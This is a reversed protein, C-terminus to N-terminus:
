KSPGAKKAKAIVDAISVQKYGQRKSEDAAEMFAFMDITVASPVPVKGTEFFKAVQKMLSLYMHETPKGTKSTKGGLTVEAGYGGRTPDFIGIRGGPWTGTVIDTDKKRVVTQCGPGMLTFLVEAGHVGYWFLDPHHEEHKCPSWAIVKEFPKGAAETQLAVVPTWYRLSSASWCPTKAQEALRFIEIVDALSGAMPKDIYLPLRAKIVPRAQGLHPRGDVSELMVGDVKKCMAEISDCIEVGYKEHLTKTFGEVRDASSSIDASGGKYAAVVRFRALPDPKKADNFLKTFGVVHSTDLGIMGIRFPKDFTPKAGLVTGSCALMFLVGLVVIRRGSSM